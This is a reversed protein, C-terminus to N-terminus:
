DSSICTNPKQCRGKQAFYRQSAKRDFLGFLLHWSHSIDFQSSTSLNCLFSLNAGLQCPPACGPAGPAIKHYNPSRDPILYYWPLVMLGSSSSWRWGPMLCYWWRTYAGNGPTMVVVVLRRIRHASIFTSGRLPRAQQALQYFIGKGCTDCRGVSQSDPPGSDVSPHYQPSRM